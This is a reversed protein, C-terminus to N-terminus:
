HMVINYTQGDLTATASADCAVSAGPGYDFGIPYTPYTALTLTFTGNVIWPCGVNIQLPTNVVITYAEGDVSVGNASGTIKYIDDYINFYTSEGAYWERDQTTSWTSVGGSTNTVTAGSVVVHYVLHGSSIHGMNTITQTGQVHYDNHYYNSLTITIVTNSDLYPGSFVATIIGRRNVLDSGLCNVTGFNIVVTKPWTILDWPTITGTACGSLASSRLTNSSDTVTAVQKWIGAFANDAVSNDSASSYSAPKPDEKKKCGTYILAISVFFAFGTFLKIAKTKMPISKNLKGVDFKVFKKTLLM